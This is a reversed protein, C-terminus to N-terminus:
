DKIEKLVLGTSCCAKMSQESLLWLCKLCKSSPVEIINVVTIVTRLIIMETRTGTLLLSSSFSLQYADGSCYMNNVQSLYFRSFGSEVKLWQEYIKSLKHPASPLMTQQQHAHVTNVAVWELRTKKLSSVSGAGTLTRMRYFFLLTGCPWLSCYKDLCISGLM